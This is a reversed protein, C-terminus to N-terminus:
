LVLYTHEVPCETHAFYTAVNTYKMGMSFESGVVWIDTVNMAVFVYITSNFLAECPCLIGYFYM